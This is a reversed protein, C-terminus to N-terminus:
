ARDKWYYPKRKAHVVAVVLIREAEIRYVIRFPFRAVPCAQHRRDVKAFQNPTRAIRELTDDIARSFREAAEPSRWAYWDFSEDFDMRAAPLLDVAAM